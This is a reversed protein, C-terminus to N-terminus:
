DFTREVLVVMRYRMGEYTVFAGGAAGALKLGLLVFGWGGVRGLDEDTGTSLIYSGDTVDSMFSAFIGGAGHGAWNALAAVLLLYVLVAIPSAVVMLTRLPPVPGIGTWRVAPVAGLSGILGFVLTGVPIVFNGFQNVGEFGLVARATLFLAIAGLNSVVLAALVITASGRSM